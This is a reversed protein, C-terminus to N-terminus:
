HLFSYKIPTENWVRRYLEGEWLITESSDLVEGNDNSYLEAPIIYFAMQILMSDAISEISSDQNSTRKPIRGTWSLWPFSNSKLVRHGRYVM